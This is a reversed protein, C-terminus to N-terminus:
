MDPVEKTCSSGSWLLALKMDIYPRSFLVKRSNLDVSCLMCIHSTCVPQLHLSLSPNIHTVSLRLLAFLDPILYAAWLLIATYSFIFTHRQDLTIFKLTFVINIEKKTFLILYFAEM